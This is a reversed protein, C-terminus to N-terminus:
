PALVASEPQEPPATLCHMIYKLTDTEHTITFKGDAGIYYRRSKLLRKVERRADNSFVANGSATDGDFDAGLGSLKAPHPSLSNYTDSGRVPFRPAMGSPLARWDADLEQRPEFQVTSMLYPLSPYTSRKSAVPYRTVFVPYEEAVAYLLIYFLENYTMPLCDKALRDKPVHDVGHVVRFTQDPGRYVLALYRGAVMIPLGRVSPEKYSEIISEIGSSTMWKDYEENSLRVRESMLSKPNVLLSEGTRSPFVTQLFSSTFRHVMVPEIAKAMQFLGIATHNVTPNGVQGIRSVDTNFSTIVNRTGHAVSRSAWKALIFGNKGGLISLIYQYIENVARQLSMRQADYVFPTASVSAAHITNSIAILKYYFSNIEDRSERGSKDIELDRYGAPLVYIRSLMCNARKRMVLKINQERKSSARPEFEIKQWHQLFFDFGTGGELATCKVFDKKEEDFKAFEKGSLIQEYFGRIDILSAYVQPHIVPIKIDIYSFRQSRSESGAPGFIETSYLGNPHFNKTAGDFIDLSTVPRLFKAVEDRIILLDLNFPQLGNKSFVSM